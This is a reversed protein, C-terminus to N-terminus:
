DHHSPTAKPCRSAPGGTGMATDDTFGSETESAAYSTSAALGSSRREQSDSASEALGDSTFGRFGTFGPAPRPIVGTGVATSLNTSCNARPMKAVPSTWTGQRCIAFAKHSTPRQRYPCHLLVCRYRGMCRAAMVQAMVHENGRATNYISDLM